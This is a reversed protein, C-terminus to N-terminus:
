KKKFLETGCWCFDDVHCSIIGQLINKSRWYFIAEDYKYMEAGVEFLEEKVQLYWVRSADILGYVTTKLKWLNGTNAEKPPKLYLDRDTQNGQLRFVSKVDLSSAQWQHSSIIALVIQLNEKSCTPSDKRIKNLNEEEFGRAVLRAKNVPRDKGWKKSFANM